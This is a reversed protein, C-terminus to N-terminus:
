YHIVINGLQGMERMLPRTQSHDENRFAQSVAPL